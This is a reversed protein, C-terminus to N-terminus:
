RSPPGPLPPQPEPEPEPQPPMPPVPSAAGFWTTKLHWDLALSAFDLLDVGGDRDLDAPVEAGTLALNQVCQHLDRCDVTGDNDLDARFAWNPPPMSAASTCGYAGMNVRTNKGWRNTPDAPVTLLEDDLPTGPNGADICRSTEADWVWRHDQKDDQTWRWGESKLHYDGPIWEASSHSPYETWYGPEAFCPDCFINGTGYWVARIDQQTADVATYTITVSSNVNEIQAETHNWLISNTINLTSNECFIASGTRPSLQGIIVPPQPQVVPEFKENHAITCNRITLQSQQSYIANGSGGYGSQAVNGCLLSNTILPSSYQCYVAGGVYGAANGVISCHVITPSANQLTLGGGQEWEYNICATIVCNRITPSTGNCLIGTSYQPSSITLGAITCGTMEGSNIILSGNLRTSAVVDPELTDVSQIVVHKGLTSLNEQYSGRALYIKDSNEAADVASQVSQLATEWSLGDGTNDPQNADVYYVNCAVIPNSSFLEYEHLNTHTDGDWDNDPTAVNGAGFYEAEWWDPLGDSDADVFQDCGMDTGRGAGRIEGDFDQPPYPPRRKGVDICPSGAQLHGDPTLLPPADMNAQGEYGGQVDSYAVTLEDGETKVQEPWNAWLICNSVKATADYECYIGGARYTYWQPPSNGYITCNTITAESGYAVYVGGGDNNGSIFCNTIEIDAYWCNVGQANQSVVSQDLLTDQSDDLYIGDYNGLVRSQKIVTGRSGMVLIAAQENNRATVGEITANTTDILAVATGNNEMRLDRVNINACDVAFVCGALSSRDVTTGTEGVLYYIPKGDVTNSTAINQEYHERSYGGCAFNYVNNTMMNDRLTNSPSRYLMIGYRCDSVTNGILTNNTSDYLWIGTDSNDTATVNEIRSFSTRIFLVGKANNTLTLDKVIISSCNVAVVCGANSTADIFTNHAGVLYYIPKGDVTNSTDIDQNYDISDTSTSGYVEFNVANDQITNDRLTNESSYYIRLGNLTNHSIKNNALTNSGTEYSLEVGSQNESIVNNSITNNSSQVYVGYYAGIIKFSDVACNDASIVVGAGYGGQSADIVPQDIGILEIRKELTVSENYTGASVEVTEGDMAADIAQQITPYQQPVYRTGKIRLTVQIRRPSNVANPDIISLITRYAGQQLGETDVSVTVPNIEGSSSGSAPEVMLWPCNCDIYWDLIQGGCNRISLTIPEPNPGDKERNFELSSQSVAISALERNFEFAGIDAIPTRNGDGDLIRPNGDPDTSFADFPDNTGRDICASNSLIHFDETFAFRPNGTENHENEASLNNIQYGGTYENWTQGDFYDGDQNNYFLCYRIAPSSAGYDRYIAYNPHKTFICNTITAEIENGCSIASGRYDTVNASFTCNTVVPAGDYDFALAGARYDSTNKDFVCNTFGPSSYRCYVAGGSYRAANASFTCDIITMHSGDCYIGAGYSQSVNNAITCGALIPDSDKCYLAGGRSQATNDIMSCDTIVPASNHDCYIAGGAYTATNNYLLCNTIAVSTYEACHIGAGRSERGNTITFGDILCGASVKGNLVLRQSVGHQTYIFFAGNKNECDVICNTPGYESKLSINKGDIHLGRNGPGKYLGDAVLITDGTAAADIAAQINNYDAPADDDVTITLGYSATASAFLLVAPLLRKM